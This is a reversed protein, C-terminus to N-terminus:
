TKSFLSCQRKVTLCILCRNLLTPQAAQLVQDESMGGKGSARMSAEAQERWQYVYAPDAVKLILWAEM